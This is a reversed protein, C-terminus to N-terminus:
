EFTLKEIKPRPNVTITTAVPDSENGNCDTLTYSITHVVPDFLVGDGPFFMDALRSSPQGTGSITGNDMMKGAPGDPDPTDAFDITWEINNVMSLSDCCNDDLDTLDLLTNGSIFTYGDPNSYIILNDRNYINPTTSFTASEIMDVCEEFDKSTFTPPKEDTVTVTHACEDFDSAKEARWSITSTGLEFPYDPIDPPGPNADSGVFSGTPGASGDPNTISWAWTIPQIGELLIPLDYGAPPQESNRTATCVGPDTTTEYNAPCKIDPEANITVTFECSATNGAADTITYEIITVGYYFSDPAPYIGTGSLEGATYQDAYDAPPTLEWTLVLGSTPCNDTYEPDTPTINSAYEEEFDTFTVIDAPCDIVNPPQEDAITIDQTCTTTNGCDDTATYIVTTVGVNFPGTVTGIGTAGTTAGTKEWTIAVDTDCNDTAMPDELTFDQILCLDADAVNSAAAPCTITPPTTDMVTILQTCTASNGCSDTAEYTRTITEPCTLGDSVDSIFTVTAGNCADAATVASIDPAPIDLVCEVTTDNPCTISPASLDQVTISQTHSTIHYCEDEVTWTRQIVYNCGYGGLENYVPTVIACNDTATVVPPDPIAGCDVTTDNPLGILVPAEFDGVSVTQTATAINGCYDTATWTRLLEYNGECEGDIKQETLDMSAGCNDSASPIASPDFLTVVNIDDILNGYTNNGPAGQIARFLFATSTQGAPIAFSFSYQEWDTPGVNKPSTVTAVLSVNNHDPGVYVGMIDDTSNTSLPPRWRHWFSIQVWTTPVTCFEQYFDGYTDANLEAHFNGSHSFVGQIKGSRQIEINNTPSDSSWGSVDNENEYDWNQSPLLLNDEFDANQFSQICESCEFVVDDPVDHIVPAETDNFTIIQTCYAINGCLDTISYQRTVIIPCNDNSTTESELNFSEDLLNCNDSANGGAAEFDTLSTYAVPIDGICDFNINLPCSLVPDTTDDITITQTCSGTNGCSDTVIFTRVFVVPCSGTETDIYTIQKVGCSETVSGGATIFEPLTITAVTASFPLTTITVLDTNDCAEQTVDPPCVVIPNTTDDFTIIQQCQTQNNCLDTLTFIRQVTTPCTTGSVVDRYTITFSCNDSADGGATQLQAYTITSETLSVPLGTLVELDLANCAELSIDVPCSIITPPITDTRTIIFDCMVSNGCNDWVQYTNTITEPCSAGDTVTQVLSISTNDVTCPFDLIGGAAEFEAITNISITGEPCLIADSCTLCPLVEMAWTETYICGFESTATVTYTIPGTNSPLVTFQTSDGRMYVDDSPSWTYSYGDPLDLVVSDQDCMLTAADLTFVPTPHVLVEFNTTDRGCQLGTAFEVAQVSYSHNGAPLVGPIYTSSSVGLEQLAITGTADLNDYWFIDYIGIPLPTTTLEASEGQCFELSSLLINIQPVVTITVTDCVDAAGQCINGLINGCVEYQVTSPAFEDPTFTSTLCGSTCSLYSEYGNGSIDRWSVTAEDISGEVDIIYDCGVRTSINAPTIVGSVQSIRIQQSEKGPKCITIVHIGGSGICAETGFIQETGCNVKMGEVGVSPAKVDEIILSFVGPDVYVSVSVCEYNHKADCCIGNREFEPSLWVSDPNNRLDAYFHPVTSQCTNCGCEDDVTITHTQDFYNGCEDTVRYVRVVNTPCFGPQGDLGQYSESFLTVTASSCNDTGTITTLVGPIDDPCSVTIDAPFNDFTPAIDDSVGIVQDATAFNGCADTVTFTRTISLESTCGINQVVDNYTINPSSDCNDSVVPSGTNAPLRSDACDILVNAPAIITPKTIDQVTIIQSASSSNGCNDVATWTRTLTYSFDTCSGDTTQTSTESLTIVPTASCNDTATPTAAAPVSSCNVTINAPIGSLVPAVNDLITIEQSLIAMNGCADTISYYRYITGLCEQNADTSVYAVTVTGGCNDTKGTVQGTNPAPIKSYCAYPGLSPLPNATPATIDNIIINQPIDTTNGYSDTVRYTRVMVGSCDPTGTIGVYSVTPIGCNDLEGTVDNIDPPPIDAICNFPGIDPLPDATPDENDSVTITQFCQEVNGAADSATWMVNTTGVPYTDSANATSNFNNILSTVSCNDSATPSIVTVVAGCSGADAIQTQNPACTITPDQKDSVIIDFSCSATGNNAVDTYEYTITTTGTPFSSGSVLGASLTGTLGTGDCNDAFTPASYNVVATCEDLDTEASINGPCSVTTPPDIDVITVNFSCVASKNGAIDSVDYTVLTTGVPFISGPLHSRNWTLNANSTCNDTASPDFWAVSRDCNGFTNSLTIDTPCGTVVPAENDSVTIAQTCTNTNGANDTVTWTVTTNGVPFSAPANNTVPAVGCNDSTTPTGLSVGSATCNGADTNANVAAPCTITPKENDIVTVTQTCTSTNGSDDTVTWTVNTTGVLFLAPADNSTSAVGCNDNTTPTGLSVSSATCNGADANVNVAAPCTITPPQNDSVIVSQTCTATLGSNDTVTWTVTTTGILFSAPADNTVTSVGCNEGTTPTGLSVGSATCNGADTDVNVAAPCTITPNENDAVIVTFSCDVIGCSNTATVTVNTTGVNFDSGSGTGSGSGTTQGSFTYTIAPVPAGSATATYTANAACTGAVTNLAIPSSPCATFSPLTNVTVTIDDTATFGNGDTVTVSYITTSTPSAVPNAINTASLGTSPSWSYTLNPDGTALTELTVSSGECIVQPDPLNTITITPDELVTFSLNTSNSSFSVSNSNITAGTIESWGTSYEGAILNTATSAIDGALYNATLTYTPNTIGSTTVTWFRNLYNATNANNPHVAGLTSVEIYDGTGLNSGSTLNVNVPIANGSGDSIPFTYNTLSTVEQRLAFGNLNITTASNLSLNNVLINDELVLDANANSTIRDLIIDSSINFVSGASTSGNGFQFTGGVTSKTGSGSILGLDLETAATSPKQFVITGGSFIFNGAQTVNLSGTSSLENGVTALTVTGGSITIGSTVNPPDLTGAASNYLRGAINVDGGSVVFAGDVLTHVENGTGNGFNATGASVRILGKNSITFNGTTLTGGAVDFGATIPISLGAAPNITFSGGSPITILGNTMTLSGGSTVSNTGNITLTTNINSKDIILEEFATNGNITTNSSGTFEVTGSTGPTFTGNNTWNGYVRLTQSAIYDVTGGSRIEISNCVSATNVTVTIGSPIIVNDSIGPIFGGWTNPDNWNGSLTATYDAMSSKLPIQSEFLNETTVTDEAGVFIYQRVTSTNGSYDAVEYKRTITYPCYLTNKGESTLRFSTSRVDCNDSAKGGANFFSQLTTYPSPIRDNCGISINEPVSIVPAQKDTVVVSFKCSVMDELNDFATYTVFTVGVNFSYDDLQNIGARSSADVTAGAMEWSLGSLTGELVKVNLGKSINATCENIDTYTSIDEPCIMKLPAKAYLGASGPTLPVRYDFGPLGFVSSTNIGYANVHAVAALHVFFLAIIVAM